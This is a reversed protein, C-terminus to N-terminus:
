AVYESQIELGRQKERLKEKPSKIRGNQRYERHDMGVAQRSIGEQEDCADKEIVLSSTEKKDQQQTRRHDVIADAKQDMVCFGFSDLKNPQDRRNNVIQQHQAVEFVAIEKSFRKIVQKSRMDHVVVM